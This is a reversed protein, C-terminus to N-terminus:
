IKASPDVSPRDTHEKGLSLYQYSDLLESTHRRKSQQDPRLAAAKGLRFMFVPTEGSELKFFNRVTQLGNSFFSFHNQKLIGPMTDNKLNFLNLSGITYPHIVFGMQTLRLWNFMMLRGAEVLSEPTIKKLTVCSLASSSRLLKKTTMPVVVRAIFPAFLSLLTPRQTIFKLFLLEPKSFGLGSGNLGTNHAEVEKRTFRVWKAIESVLTTEKWLLSEGQSIYSLISEQDPRMYHIRSFGITSDQENLTQLSQSDLVEGNYIGRHTHRKSLQQFLEQDKQSVQEASPTFILQAVPVLTKQDLNQWKSKHLVVQTKYGLQRAALSLSEVVFGLSFLSAMGKSNLSHFAATGDHIIEAFQTTPTETWAIRWPQTNDASPVLSLTELILNKLNPM